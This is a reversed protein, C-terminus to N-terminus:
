FYVRPGVLINIRQIGYNEDEPVLDNEPRPFVSRLATIQAGVGLHKSFIYEVGVHGYLGLGSDTGKFTKIRNHSDRAKMREVYYVYGIGTSVDFGFKGKRYAFVASPGIYNQIILYEHNYNAVNLAHNIELGWGRRWLHQYTLDTDGCFQSTYIGTPTYAKSYILGPGVSAKVVNAPPSTQAVSSLGNAEPADQAHSAVLGMLLFSFTILVKMIVIRYNNM